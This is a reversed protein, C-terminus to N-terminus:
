QPKLFTCIFQVDMVLTKSDQCLQLQAETQYMPNINFQRGCHEVFILPVNSKQMVFATDFCGFQWYYVFSQEKDYCVDWIHIWLVM